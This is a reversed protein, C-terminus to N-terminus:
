DKYYQLGKFLYLYYNHRPSQLVLPFYEKDYVKRHLRQIVSRKHLSSSLNIINWVLAKQIALFYSLRGTFLYAIATAECLLIHMPVIRWFTKVELNKIYTCIRNKYSHFYIKELGYKKSSVGGKHHIVTDANFLVKWGSLWIRMCLDTEEFYMFYDDDFLGIKNIVERRILLGAGYGSFIYRSKEYKTITSKKGYGPYYLFGTYTLYAGISNITNDEYLFKPQVAAVDLKEELTEVLKELSDKQMLADSNLLLIYKGKAKTFGLNNGGAFGLNKRSKIVNLWNFTALIKTSDDSSNNDVVLVEFNKYTQKKLSILCESLIEAGNWNVIIISVLPSNM